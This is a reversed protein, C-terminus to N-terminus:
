PKNEAISARLAYPFNSWPCINEEACGTRVIEGTVCKIQGHWPGSTEPPRDSIFGLGLGGDAEMARQNVWINGDEFADRIYGCLRVRQGVHDRPNRFIERDENSQDASVCAGLVLILSACALALFEKPIL